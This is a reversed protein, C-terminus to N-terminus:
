RVVVGTVAQEYVNLGANPGAIRNGYTGAFTNAATGYIYFNPIQRNTGVCAESVIQDAGDRAIVTAGHFNYDGLHGQNVTGYGRQTIYMMEGAVANNSAVGANLTTDGQYDFVPRAGAGDRFYAPQPAARNGWDRDDAVLARAYAVCDQPGHYDPYRWQPSENERETLRAKPELKKFVTGNADPNGSATNIKATGGSEKFFDGPVVGARNARDVYLTQNLGTRKIAYQNNASFVYNGRVARLQAVKASVPGLSAHPAAAGGQKETAKKGMVDADKELHADDNIDIGNGLELLPQVRGQKQQIVHWAEHPLHREQGPGIHIETGQTYASAQLQAPKSSNYHVRVNDLSLGSLSEVGAKLSDPLGTRNPPAIAMGAPGASAATRGSANQQADRQRASSPTM